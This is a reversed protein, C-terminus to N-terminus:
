REREKEGDTKRKVEMIETGRCERGSTGHIPFVNSSWQTDEAACEGVTGATLVNVSRRFRTMMEIHKKKKDVVVEKM